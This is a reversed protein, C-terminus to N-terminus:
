KDITLYPFVSYEIRVHEKEVRREGEREVKREELCYKRVGYVCGCDLM